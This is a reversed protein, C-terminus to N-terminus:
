SRWITFQTQRESQHGKVRLNLLIYIFLFVCIMLFVIVNKKNSNNNARGQQNGKVRRASKTPDIEELNDFNRGERKLKDLYIKYAIAVHYASRKLPYVTKPIELLLM